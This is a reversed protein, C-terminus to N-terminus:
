SYLNLPKEQSANLTALTAATRNLVRKRYEFWPFYMGTLLPLDMQCYTSLLM